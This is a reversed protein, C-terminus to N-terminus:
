DSRGTLHNFFISLENQMKFAVLIPVSTSTYNNNKINQYVRLLLLLITVKKKHGMPQM